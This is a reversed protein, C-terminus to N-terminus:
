DADKNEKVLELATVRLAFNIVRSYAGWESPKIGLAHCITKIHGENEETLRIQYYGPKTM